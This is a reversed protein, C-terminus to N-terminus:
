LALNVSFRHSDGLGRTMPMFSYDLRAKSFAIGVGGSFGYTEYGTQYGARLFLLRRWAFEAGGHIHLKSDKEKVADLLVLCEGPGVAAPAAVGVRATLPLEIPESALRGTKGINQVAAAIRMGHGSPAYSLGLDGGFGFAEDVFIKEYYLKLNVGASLGSTLARAYSGGLTMETSSFSGAPEPSPADTRYEIDPVGTYLLHISGGSERGKFALALFGSKVGQMWSHLTFVAETRNDGILGAPNRYGASADFGSAIGADGMAAHRADVGLKLSPFGSGQARVAALLLLCPLIKRM